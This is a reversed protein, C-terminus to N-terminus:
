ITQGETKLKFLRLTRLTCLVFATFPMQICSYFISQMTLGNPKRSSFWMNHLDTVRSELVARLIGNSLHLKHSVYM